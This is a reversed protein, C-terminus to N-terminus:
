KVTGKIKLEYREGKEVNSANSKIFVSKNFPGASEANYSVKIKGAKGPLVPAKPWEPTTCGCSATVDQVLLPVNGTNTFEFEYVAPVKQKVTGFDHTSETFTMVAGSKQAFLPIATICAMLLTIFFRKAM